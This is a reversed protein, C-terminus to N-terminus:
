DIVIPDNKIDHHYMRFGIQQLKSAYPADLPDPCAFIDYLKTIPFRRARDLYSNFTNNATEQVTVKDSSPINGVYDPVCPRLFSLLHSCYITMMLVLVM